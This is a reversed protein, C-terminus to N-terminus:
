HLVPLGFARGTEPTVTQDEYLTIAADIVRSQALLTLWRKTDEPKRSVDVAVWLQGADEIVPHDAGSRVEAHPFRLPATVLVPVGQRVADAQATRLARRTDALTEHSFHGLDWHVTDTSASLKAAADHADSGLGAVVIVAGPERLLPPVTDRAAALADAGPDRLSQRLENILESFEPLDEELAGQDHVAVIDTIDGEVEPDAIHEVIETFREREQGEEEDTTVEITAEYYPRSMIGSLGKTSIRKSDVIRATHGYTRLAQAGIEPLSRGELQYRNLAM